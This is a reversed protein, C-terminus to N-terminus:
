NNQNFFGNYLDNMFYSNQQMLEKLRAKESMYENLDNIGVMSRKNKNAFFESYCDTSFRKSYIKKNMLYYNCLKSKGDQTGAEVKVKLPSYGYLNYIKKYQNNVFASINKYLFMFLTNDARNFRYQYYLNTFKSIVFSYILEGLAFFPFALRQEGSDTITLIECLDRADAGWSAPRQEDTIVKVFPFNDITASHRVMKLWYNFLDNKQNTMEDKKKKEMLELNNGREKGIETMNVVGFEFSDAYANNEVLKRGLRLSDYDLIHSYRSFADILRSDRSFFDTNWMPFNGVSSMLNDTRISYNSIILSSQILYIFYLQAYNEIVQWVSIVQLKDDHTLGYRRYDYNFIKSKKNKSKRWRKYKKRVFARATTLNYIQHFNIARKIENELNIWPFNPFKLDNELIKEFAKDRFMAEQSLAMDTIATTKKKGMTGCTMFVIPRENIFGKNRREMHRLRMLAIKKRFKCFLYYALVFWVWMPLFKLLPSLDSFLKYIQMFVNLFDFSVVVYFYFALFEIVITFINFTFLWTILWIIRYHPNDKLFDIFGKIWRFLPKISKDVVKKSIKLPISDKNYKNNQTQFYRKFMYYFAFIFPLIILIIKAVNYLIDVLRKLYASLNKKSFFVQWYEKSSEQFGKLSDPVPFIPEFNIESIKNVTPFYQGGSGFLENFYYKLSICFDKVSEIIRALALPFKFASFIIFTVTIITCLIHLYNNKLWKLFKM